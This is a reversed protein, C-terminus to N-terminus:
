YIKIERINEYFEKDNNDYIDNQKFTNRETQQPISQSNSYSNRLSNQNNEESLFKEKQLNLDQYNVQNNNFNNFPITYNSQKNYQSHRLQIDESIKSNLLEHELEPANSYEELELPPASPGDGIEESGKTKENGLNFKEIINSIYYNKPLNFVQSVDSLKCATRCIPCLFGDKSGKLSEFLVVLCELCYSHGCFLSRPERFYDLCVSCILEGEIDSVKVEKM